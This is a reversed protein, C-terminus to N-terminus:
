GFLARLKALYAPAAADGEPPSWQAWEKEITPQYPGGKVEFFVSGPELAVISHFTGCPVHAGILEGNPRILATQTVNGDGDFLVVGLAGRVAVFTEEKDPRLHRHPRVYSDTEMANLLRNAPHEDRDHFNLNMRRRKSERARACLADLCERGFFLNATM